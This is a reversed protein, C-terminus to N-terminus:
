PTVDVTYVRDKAGSYAVVTFVDPTTETVKYDPVGLVVFDNVTADPVNITYSLDAPDFDPVAVGKVTIGTPVSDIAWPAAVTGTLTLATTESFRDELNGDAGHVATVVIDITTASDDAGVHLIGNRDVRTTTSKNGSVEYTVAGETDGTTEAYAALQYTQGREVSTGAVEVGEGTFVELASVGTVEDRVTISDTGAHTTLLVAPMFRSLSYIGQHHSFYNTHLGIPNQLTTNEVLTDSIIFFDKTTLIAQAGPINLKDGPIEIIRGPAEAKEMNFAGAMAEVDIAANFEPTTILILDERKAASPMGAANFKTNLFRMNGAVSRITRLAGKAEAEGSGWAAVDPVNVRYFGDKADYETLLQCTLLFEDLENSIRPAALLQSLFNNLGDAESLFARKLVKKNVTLKYYDERNISHFNTKVDPVEQGWLDKELYDREASYSHAKLLGVAVEEITSGYSMSNRKLERLPNDWDMRRVVVSGIRNILSHEFENWLQPYKELSDLQDKLGAQTPDPIRQQYDFSADNRIGILIQTNTLPEARLSM